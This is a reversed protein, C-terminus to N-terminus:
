GNDEGKLYKIPRQLRTFTHGSANSLRESLENVVCTRHAGDYGLVLCRSLQPRHKSAHEPDILESEGGTM